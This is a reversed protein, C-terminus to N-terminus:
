GARRGEGRADPLGSGDPRHAELERLASDVTPATTYLAAVRAENLGAQVASSPDVLVLAAGARAARRRMIGLLGVLLRSPRIPGLDAVVVAPDARLAVDLRDLVTEVSAGMTVPDLHDLVDVISLVVAKDAATERARFPLAVGDISEGAGAAEVAITM